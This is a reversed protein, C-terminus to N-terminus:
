AVLSLAIVALLAFGLAVFYTFSDSSPSVEVVGDGPM